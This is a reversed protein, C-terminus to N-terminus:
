REYSLKIKVLPIKAQYQDMKVHFHVKHMKDMLLRNIKDFNENNVIMNYVINSLYVHVLVVQRDDVRLVVVAVTVEFRFKEYTNLRLAIRKNKRDM